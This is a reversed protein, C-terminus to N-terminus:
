QIKKSLADQQRRLMAILFEIHDLVKFNAQVHKSKTKKLVTLWVNFEPLEHYYQGLKRISSILDNDFPTEALTCNQLDIKM